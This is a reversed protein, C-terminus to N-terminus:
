LVQLDVYPSTAAALMAGYNPRFRLVGGLRVSPAEEVDCILHDSSGGLVQVGEDLPTLGEFRVDQKGLALIARLRNGRDEFSPIQGFADAGILGRPQSPKRRLEVVQARLEMTDQALYPIDRMGTCDTGLLFAEGLRLHNVGAPLRGEELLKLTLTGGGSVLPAPQGSATRFRDAAELLEAQNEPTALVGGFCGLNTGVGEVTVARLSACRRGLAEMEEPLFGERLDGLDVMVVVRFPKGKRACLDELAELTEGMSVLAGDAVEVLEELEQEMPIRILHLPGTVGAERLRRLNRVRSDGLGACGEELFLRGVEPHGCLGKTVGWVRVGAAACRRVVEAVNSRMRERYVRLEPYAM